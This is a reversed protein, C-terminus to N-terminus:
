VERIEFKYNVLVFVILFIGFCDRSDSSLKAYGPICLCEFGGLKNFCRSYEDCPKDINECENIDLFYIWLIWLTDWYIHREFFRSGICTENSSKSFGNLCKCEYSGIMNICETYIHNECINKKSNCEDIDKCKESEKTFGTNCM